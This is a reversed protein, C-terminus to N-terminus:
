AAARRNREIELLLARLLVLVIIGLVIVGFVETMNVRVITSGHDMHLPAEYERGNFM